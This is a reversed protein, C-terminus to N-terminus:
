LAGGARRSGAPRTDRAASAADPPIRHAHRAIVDRLLPRVRPNAGIDRTDPWAAIEREALDCWDAVAGIFEAYFVSLLSIIHLRDPFPGGDALYGEVQGLGAALLQPRGDRTTAIAGRLDDLSGQDAHLLRVLGEVELRPPAPRTRLWHRLAERGAPTIQYATKTRGGARQRVAKAYGLQVLRKPEAYLNAESRPWFYRFSRKSQQTLEYATFPRLALLGLVAFSTTS